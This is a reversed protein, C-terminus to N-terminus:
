VPALQINARSSKQERLFIGFLQRVTILIDQIMEKLFAAADNLLTPIGHGMKPSKVLLPKFILPPERLLFRLGLRCRDNNM